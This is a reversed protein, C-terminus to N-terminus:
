PMVNAGRFLQRTLYQLRLGLLSSSPQSGCSSDDPGAPVFRASCLVLALASACEAANDLSFGQAYPDSV